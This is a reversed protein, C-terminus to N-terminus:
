HHHLNGAEPMNVASLRNPNLEDSVYEITPFVVSPPSVIRATHREFVSESQMHQSPSESPIGARIQIGESIVSHINVFKQLDRLL